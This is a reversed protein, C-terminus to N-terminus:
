HPNYVTEYCEKCLQNHYVVKTPTGCCKCNITPLDRASRYWLVAGVISVIGLLFFAPHGNFAIVFCVITCAVYIM